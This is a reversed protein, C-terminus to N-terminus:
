GDVREGRKKRNELLVKAFKELAEGNTYQRIEELQGTLLNVRSVKEGLLKEGVRVLGMLNKHTAIDASSLDGVLEESRPQIRLYNYEVNLAELINALQVDVMDASAQTFVDVLPISKRKFLWSFGGWEFPNDASYKAESMGSGTGLSIVLVGGNDRPESDQDTEENSGSSGRNNQGVPRLIHPYRKVVESLTVMVPNNAAVGGDVLHFETKGQKESDKNPESDNVSFHHPPLFVPAASTAICIDKLKVNLNPTEELKNERQFQFSTFITPQLIKIDFTPIVVNTLTQGLMIEGLNDEIIRHLYKGDYMPGFMARIYKVFSFPWFQPFIKPSNKLYFDKIEKAPLKPRKEKDPATLMASILGGTSTGAIVDFYDAIRADKGDVEQLREELFKLIVAPIIGRIGGGDISLVTILDGDKPPKLPARHNAAAM